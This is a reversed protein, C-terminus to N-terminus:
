RWPPPGCSSSPSPSTTVCPRSPCSARARSASPPGKTYPAYLPQIIALIIALAFGYLSIKEEYTMPGLKELEQRYFERSGSFREMDTRMFYMMAGVGAIILLSSPVMRLTWDIFYINQGLYKNLLGYTVVSQGGGLPTAM